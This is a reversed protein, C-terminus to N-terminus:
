NFRLGVNLFIAFFLAFFCHTKVDTKVSSFMVKKDFGFIIKVRYNKTLFYWFLCRCCFQGILYFYFLFTKTKHKTCLLLLCCYWFTFKQIKNFFNCFFIFFNSITSSMIKTIQYWKNANLLINRPLEITSCEATLRYTPPELGRRPALVSHESFNTWNKKHM